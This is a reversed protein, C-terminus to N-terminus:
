IFTSINASINARKEPPHKIAMWSLRGEQHDSPFTKKFSTRSSRFLGSSEKSFFSNNVAIKANHTKIIRATL